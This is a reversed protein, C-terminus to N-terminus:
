EFLGSFNDNGFIANDALGLGVCTFFAGPAVSPPGFFEAFPIASTALRQLPVALVGGAAAFTLFTSVGIGALFGTARTLYRFEDSFHLDALGAECSTLLPDALALGPIGGVIIQLGVFLVAEGVLSTTGFPDTLNLPSNRVIRYLNPDAAAFQRPDASLFRGSNPDAFRARYYYLGAAFDYERGTLQYRDPTVQSSIRGYTSLTSHTLVRNSSVDRATDLRDVLLWSIGSGNSVRAILQDVVAGTFYRTQASAIYGFDAWINDGSHVFVEREADQPGASDTDAIRAIRRGLADYTYEVNQTTITGAAPNQPDGPDSSWDDVRILRNRHDYEFTRTDGITLHIRKIQNAEGDYEYRYTGDSELQNAPGTTYTREESGVRSFTRNGNADYEYHEDDQGSFLADVLQGTLDYRYDISQAFQAEQHTRQEHVLLGAFDYDYDYGALLEDVANQHTLLNSRGSQDYTRITRGVLTTAELDSYRRIEAERGAANYLFDVRAPNVDATGGTPIIADFWKRTALQNRQNYTSAVTVGADDSTSIVNGQADYAYSLIVRPVDRTGDPNNDVSRLRNLTDYTFLYNSDPDSATLMNGLVDYTFAITREFSSDANFWNETLLRGAPDYDFERRRGNRDITKSQNGEADYCTLRVHEAPLNTACSTGSAETLEAIAQDITLNENYFPDREESVRNLTDYVWTTINGVPDQLLVRNGNADYRFEVVGGEADTQRILRDNTDYEYDTIRSLRDAVPTDPTENPSAPNVIIEWDLLHGDYHKRVITAPHKPDGAVGSKEETVRGSNDYQTERIEVLTGDAEHFEERTVQGFQNYAFVQFTGDAFIVKTPSGCPCNQTYDFTTTNGNFDTFTQRRGQSDYTFSSSNGDANVIRTLNGKADYAFSTTANAANTISTVRNGSDYAFDTAVPPNLPQGTSGREVIKMLNGRVDYERDTINGNRDIIRTELDPNRPDNYERFTTNGAADTEELVNGRDDYVLTTANGNGDRVIGTNQDTDFDRDDVRNGAADIIGKFDFQKTDANQEYVAKLVRKGLSDFAQDLYHAPTALYEYRTELGTQNTLKVLDGAANYTYRISNGAPDVIDTIRGRHDRVFGISEGSSHQVGSETFTAVNGNLDTITQLGETKSYRYKLGDKTTLTYFDPNIGQALAGVFGGRAVQTEDIALTDYVGPDPEFYPTWIGGFFSISHVRERYTFGVRQGAPNTLYVKTKDPIFKDNGGNLAGGPGVAAVELIRADQVGLSWGFGFDGEDGATVTDYVRSVQIPIGALPISLDTFELRFNGVQVNGEVYLITPQIFGRGNVDYAAVILAYPDNSVMSPDFVALEGDIVEQTSEKLLIWDPDSDDLDAISVRDARAYYVRYYWLNDEPDDVTGIIPVLNSVTSAPAPSTITVIPARTDGAAFGPHPPLTPDTPVPENKRAPDVVTVTASATGQLGSTDTAIAQLQVTGLTSAPLSIAGSANLTVRQGNVLLGVDAVAVNDTAFVRITYNSGVDVYTDGVYFVGGIQTDLSVSPPQTDAVMTITFPQSVTQGRNDAVTVTVPQPATTTVPSAWLIRGFKDITMGSPATDLRYTLPDGDPDTARVSYRYTAGAITTEIPSSTIRPPSNVTVSLLYGQTATAGHADVANVNIVFEGVDSTSPTWSILGATDITMGAPPNGALGITVNDGDPDIATVQYTYLSDAEAAFRPTSTILPARNGKTGKTPDNADVPEDSNSVVVSYRQTATNFGDSVEIVINHSALQAATPTWRIVGTTADISMGTPATALRWALTDRELDEARAAYLYTRGSLATTPPISVIAPAVNNCGVHLEFRQTFEALFPDTATVAVIHTGLQQDDPTWRISGTAPDISMGRPAATLSWRLPDNDPDAGLPNYVYPQGAIAQTRAISTIAPRTNSEATVVRLDFVHETQGGRGDDVLVTVRPNDPADATPTWTILGSADIQMGPPSETLSFTVVDGEADVAQPLYSWTLGVPATRRPLSFFVPALNAVAADQVTIHWSQRDEGSRGDDAVVSVLFSSGVDGAAPTWVLRQYADILDGSANRQEFREVAIGAPAQELRFNVPDNEADQARLRYEYMRGATAISIPPSTIVPASNPLSVTITFSQLAVGGRDDGVRLGVTHDGAQDENPIWVVTGLTPHVTMGDPAFSLRFTIPDGNPDIASAKYVLTERYTVSQPPSSQFVPSLNSGSTHENFAFDIRGRNENGAIALEHKGGIPVTQQWGIEVRTRVTYNAGSLDEFRYLGDGDTVTSPEGPDFAGNRNVDLYVTWGSLGPETFELSGPDLGTFVDLIEDTSSFRRTNPDIKGLESLSAGAGIGFAQINTGLQNLTNVENATSGGGNPFGDSLFIVNPQRGTLDISNLSSIAFQLGAEFNTGQCTTRISQIAQEIDPVGDNDLDATLHTFRQVGSVSADMDVQAASGSFSVIAVQATLGFGSGVLQDVLALIGASAADFLTNSRGDNNVDGVPTGAFPDDMSCSRDIVFVIVPSDGVVLNTDRVGNRNLDHFVSGAITANAPEVVHVAFRQVDEGGRGDRVRVAVDHEGVVVADAKWRIEGTTAGVTLGAPFELLSYSLDDNDPDVAAVVYVYDSGPQTSHNTIPESVIVPAHNNPDPHVCVIFDQEAGGGRGDEVLVKVTHNGIQEATPRWAVLGTASNIQMGAPSGPVLHYTLPDEDPDFAAVEYLYTPIALKNVTLHWNDIGHTNPSGAKNFTNSRYYGFRIPGGTEGFDPHERNAVPSDLNIFDESRLENLQWSAWDQSGLANDILTIFYKGGQQIVPGRGIVGNAQAIQDESYNLSEIAGERAPEYVSVDYIHYIVVQTGGGWDHVMQRYAGNNGGNPEQMATEIFSSSGMTRHPVRSWTDDNFESDSITWTLETQNSVTALTEPTSTIVPPRNPPAPIVGLVYRQEASGGRGDIVQVTVDHSGIQNNTPTWTMLGSASDISMGPPSTTLRYTLTDNDPDTANVDYRYDRGALAEIDPITTIIPAENLKGFFVLEYDFQVRNPNHFTVTPSETLENPNLKGGPVRSSYDYFPIGDPTVGAAGVVSVSPDSINKVGVLLPTDVVFQGDNRTALDVHLLNAEENFSTRGYVGSFSGSIDAFRTLDVQSESGVLTWTLRTSQGYIDTAVVEWTNEGLSLQEQTFFFGAADLVSAPHGNVTVFAIDNSFEQGSPLRPRAPMAFGELLIPGALHRSDQEPTLLTVSPLPVVQASLFHLAPEANPDSSKLSVEVDLYRGQLGILPEGSAVSRWEATTLANRDNSARVRLQLSTRDPTTAIAQLFAWQAGERQADVVETWTGKRETVTLRVQGTMDSYNYPEIGTAIPWGPVVTVTEPDIKWARNDGGGYTTTWVFGESDIVAASPTSGVSVAQVSSLTKGDQEFDFKVVSHPSNSAVWVDGNHDVGVGRFLARGPATYTTIQSGVPAHPDFRVLRGGSYTVTWVIGNTDVTIGYNDGGHSASRGAYTRTNTDIHDLFAGRTAGWLQGDADIVAGYPTGDTAVVDLLEGTDGDYVEYQSFNFLGVWINNDADVATARPIAAGSRLAHPATRNRGVNISLAIREDDPQGDNNADWPLLEAGTIRGDGNLDQSTDMVGNGNRDIFVTNLVKVISGQQFASSIHSRNAVWANGNGDVATRSPSLLTAVSNPGTRYRGLEQGTTTDFKSMTGEGSNAIWIFPFTEVNGTKNLRLQDVVDTLNLNFLTGNAFNEGSGFDVRGANNLTSDGLLSPLLSVQESRPALSNAPAVDASVPTQDIVAFPLLSLSQTTVSRAASRGDPLTAALNSGILEVSMVRVNSSKDSDNNALRFILKADTGVPIGNLGITVTNGNVQVGSGTAAVLGETINFFADRGGAITKILSNGARDVLAIEFADNIFNPDTTDFILKDYTIAIASPTEPVTFERSLAVVFSDGETLTAACNSSVVTGRGTETGGSEVVTWGTLADDIGTACGSLTIQFTQFDSLSPTGSDAVRITIPVISNAFTNDPTWSFQGTASDITAGPPANPGLSFTLNNAPLDPDAATATFSILTELPAVRDGILGLVPPLNVENVTVRFSENAVHGQEDTVRVGMDFQGPGQSESPTWRFEGTQSDIEAGAPAAVLSFTLADNPLDADTASVNFVLSTLEDVSKDPIANLTPATFGDVPDGIQIDIISDDYGRDGVLPLGPWVSQHEEWGIRMSQSSLSTVRLYESPLREPVKSQLVYIGLRSGGAFAMSSASQQVAVNARSALTQHSVSALVTRAYDAHSRPIGAVDGAANDMVFFGIERLQNSPVSQVIELSVFQSSNGPLQAIPVSVFGTTDIPESVSEAHANLENIVLLADIPSVLTDGNTDPYSKQGEAEAAPGSVRDLHSSLHNIVLLADLPSVHSDANVDFHNNPNQLDSVLMQREELVEFLRLRKRRKRFRNTRLM